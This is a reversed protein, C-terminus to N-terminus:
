TGFRARILHEAAARVSRSPDEVSLSGFLETASVVADIGIDRLADDRLSTSGCVAVCAVRRARCRSGVAAPAKGALTGADLRGEGTVVFSAGDLSDDFGTLEAFVDFGSRCRAGFFAQLAAGIGGGAGGHRMESIDVRLDERVREALNELGEELIRVDAPSAGKQPAFMRAAGHHGTLPSTVDCAGLVAVGLAAAESADIRHLDRLSGGGLPLPRGRRDLFRWGIASAAGTGGDTCASGGVAVVVEPLRAEAAQAIARGTEYSHATLANKDKSRAYAFGATVSVEVLARGDHLRAFSERANGCDFGTSERVHIVDRLADATGEGGDAVPVIVVDAAPLADKVGVAIAEAAARQDLTGKFKDPAVVVRV